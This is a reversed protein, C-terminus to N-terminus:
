FGSRERQSAGAHVSPHSSQIMAALKKMSFAESAFHGLLLIAIGNAEAELCQHYTAEGTLLADCQARHAEGWYSGGSGCVIGVSEVAYNEPHTSRWQTEPIVEELKKRIESLKTPQQFRGRRGQGIGVMPAQNPPAQNPTIPTVDSLGIAEALLANIGFEANDWATHPSYIAIGHRACELLLKGTTTQDTIRNIPKFPIPHHSVLLESKTEIAEAVTEPTVTLCTLVRNIEQHPSGLLLGVNDWSEASKLPAIRELTELIERLQTM